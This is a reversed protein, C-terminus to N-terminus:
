IEERAKIDLLLKVIYKVEEIDCDIIQSNELLNVLRDLRKSLRNIMMRNVVIQLPEDAILRNIIYEQKTTGCLFIKRNLVENEQPSIRFAVTLSRWRNHKDRSKASM